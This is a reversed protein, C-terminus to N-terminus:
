LSPNEMGCMSNRSFTLTGASSRTQPGGEPGWEVFPFAENDNYGSTWTITM